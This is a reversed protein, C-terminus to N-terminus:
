LWGALRLQEILNTLVVMNQDEEGNALAQQYKQQSAEYYELALHYDRQNAPLTGQWDIYLYALQMDARYDQPYLDTLELLYKEASEYNGLAQQISAMNLRTTFTAMNERILGSLISAAQEYFGDAKDPDELAAQAYLDALMTRQLINYNGSLRKQSQELLQIAKNLAGSSQCLQAAALYAHSLLQQEEAEEFVREYLALAQEEQGQMAAIEARVLDCDTSSGGKRTLQELVEEAQGIQGNNALAIALSRYFAATAEPSEVSRRFFEIAQEYEGLEYLCSGKIYNLEGWVPLELATEDLNGAFAANELLDLAQQYNGQEYLLVALDLYADARTPQQQIASELLTQGEKYQGDDSAEQAQSILNLYENEREAKMRYFGYGASAASLLFATGLVLSLVRKQAIFQKYTQDMRDVNNLAELMAAADAFRRASDPNMARDVIQIMSTSVKPRLKELPTVTRISEEPCKGTVAFYLTAGIAYVDTAKTIQGGARDTAASQLEGKEKVTGLSDTAAFVTREPDSAALVTQESAVGAFVTQESTNELAVAQRGGNCKWNAKAAAYQEPAAYGPTLYSTAQMGSRSMLSTGFDILCIDGSETIMVNRPKIDCHIITPKQNKDDHLYQVAQCLQCAWRHAQKQNAPGNDGVYDELNKGRIFDMVTYLYGDEGAIVDYVQPLYQHKVTKLIESENKQDLNAQVDQQVRKIVVEINMGKKHARFLDSMGAKSNLPHIDEYDWGSPGLEVKM